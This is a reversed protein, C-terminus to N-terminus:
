EPNLANPYIKMMREDDFREDMVQQWGSHAPIGRERQSSRTLAMCSVLINCSMFIVFVWTLVKGAKIPVREILASLKPYLLKMWIVAAFGWFFCYLLNIRGGLNFPIKSYDWFVKGFFIETFVSCFYEYVGGLCTGIVFLFGDSRDRYKYLLLSAAAIALGWVISFPGWVVSSRSMWIGATCRCFITEVIDGLFAGTMFLWIIKEASCGYAFVEPKEVSVPKVHASPYARRIRKDVHGYIFRGLKSSIGTLWSDVAEWQEIRRSRGSMIILTAAMDVALLIVLVWIIIGSPLGPILHFLSLLLPNGWEMMIVALLGWLVSVPLCIYGDLNWRIGSYDWWREHFIREILHGATWELVTCLVLSAGFLWIGSLESFFVTILVAGCGYLVCFPANVLGRNVFKKQKVAGSVTELVWGLFSSVFFLWLIEYGNYIM